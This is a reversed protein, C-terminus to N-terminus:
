YAQSVCLFTRAPPWKKDTNKTIVRVKRKDIKFKLEPVCLFTGFTDRCESRHKSRPKVFRKMWDCVGVLRDTTKLEAPMRVRLSAVTSLALLYVIIVSSM